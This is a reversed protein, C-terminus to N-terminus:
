WITFDCRFSFTVSKSYGDWLDRFFSIWFLLFILWPSKLLFGDFFRFSVPPKRRLSDHGCWRNWILMHNTGLNLGWKLRVRLTCVSVGAECESEVRGSNGSKCFENAKFDRNPKALLDFCASRLHSFGIKWMYRFWVCMKHEKYSFIITSSILRPKFDHCTM